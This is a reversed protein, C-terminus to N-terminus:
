GPKRAQTRLHRAEPPVGAPWRPNGVTRARTVQVQPRAPGARARAHATGFSGLRGPPRVSVEVTAVAGDLACDVIRAGQAAAVREAMGCAKGAGEVAHQAAALAALDAATAARHRAVAVAGLSAVLTALGVLVLVLGATAVAVFGEERDPNM